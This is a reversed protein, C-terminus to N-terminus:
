KHVTGLHCRQRQGLAGAGVEGGGHQHRHRHLGRKDVQGDQGMKVMLADLYVIPYLAEPPRDQWAKVEDQISDTVESILGPSVDVGYLDRLHSQIDRVTMGLAYLSLIKADFGEFRAQHMEILQPEFTGHRDRPVEITMEGAEGKLTKSSNGNRSNGSYYGAVDHKKYGLHHNMEGSLMREVLAKTLEKM